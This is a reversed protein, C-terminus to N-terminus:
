EAGAYLLIAKQYAVIRKEIGQINKHIDTLPDYSTLGLSAMEAEKAPLKDTWLELEEKASELAYRLMKLQTFTEGTEPIPFIKTM